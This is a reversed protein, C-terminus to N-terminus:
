NNCAFEITYYGGKNPGADVAVYTVQGISNPFVLQTNNYLFCSSPKCGQGGDILGYLGMSEVDTTLNVTVQTAINSSFRYIVDYGGAEPGCSYNTVDAGFEASVRADSFGCEAQFDVVCIENCWDDNSCDEDACDLKGDGDNDVGDQCDAESDSPCADKNACSPDACDVLGDFDDDIGDSCDVEQNLDCYATLRAFAATTPPQEM